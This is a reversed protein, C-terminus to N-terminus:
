LGRAAAYAAMGDVALADRVAAIGAYDPLVISQGDASFGTGATPLTFFVSAAPDIGRLGFALTAMAMADFGPETTVYPAVAGIVGIASAPDMVKGTGLMHAMIGRVFAQQNRVRQYDGDIFAYRERVFELAAQGGLRNIGPTFTHGTDHTATFPVAVDVDIGGLADTLVKFGEFDIMVYHDIRTNLLTGVTEVVLPPGGIELSANVKSQGYGPISVWTDRMISIGYARQRDAPIHMLMLMDARHDAREGTAAQRDAAERANGRIDSGIVLVNLVGPPLEPLTPPPPPPPTEPTPTPTPTESPSASTTTPSATPPNSRQMTLLVTAVLAALLLVAATSVAAIRRSGWPVRGQPSPASHGNAADSM